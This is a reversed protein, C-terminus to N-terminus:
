QAIRCFLYKRMVLVLDLTKVECRRCKTIQLISQQVIRCFLCNRVFVLDLRQMQHNTFNIVACNQLLSLKECSFSFGTDKRQLTQMQHNTFNIVACNQLFSLKESSSYSLEIWRRCRSILLISRQVIRCFLCNRMVFFVFVLDLTQM